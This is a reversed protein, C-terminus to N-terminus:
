RDIAAAVEDETYAAFIFPLSGLYSAIQDLSSGLRTLRETDVFIQNDAPDGYFLVIRRGDPDFRDHILDVIDEVYHRGNGTAAPDSPMGHDASIAIVYGDAGATEDLTALVRALERDIASLTTRLEVSDPGYQHAVYDPSKFNVLILDTVTDAGVQERTIMSILADVQFAPFLGSRLLTSGSSIQHDLWRGGAQEWATRADVDRLYIPLRYCDPNANWHGNDGDFVALVTPRGNVLCGGHGALPITARPTTGQAIIVARGATYINWIDAITLTMLSAPSLGPYPGQSRGTTRNFTTNAAVGHIQPDAGTALTAHGVSTLSPLYNVSAAGFWAGERRLRGMTPMEAAYRDFYDRRMGDLILLMMARPQARPERLVSTLARGTMTAPTPLGLIAALTPAVDQQLVPEPSARREIFAPGFLLLPIDIDYSWPSGHMFRYLPDDRELIVEGEQPVLMLQGSRGPYYARAFMELFAQRRDAPDPQSTQALGDTGVTLLVALTVLTWGPRPM